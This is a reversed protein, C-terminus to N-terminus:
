NLQGYRKVNRAAGMIKGITKAALAYPSVKFSVKPIYYGPPHNWRNGLWGRIKDEMEFYVETLADEVLMRGDKWNWYSDINRYNCYNPMKKLAISLEGDSDFPHFCDTEMMEIEVYERLERLYRDNHGSLVLNKLMEEKFADVVEPWNYKM